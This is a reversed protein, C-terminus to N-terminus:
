RWNLHGDAQVSQLINRVEGLEDLGEALESALQDFQSVCNALSVIHTNPMLKSFCSVKGMEDM